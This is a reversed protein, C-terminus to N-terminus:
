HQVHRTLTDILADIAGDTFQPSASAISLTWVLPPDVDIKRLDPFRDAV